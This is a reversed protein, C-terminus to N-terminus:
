HEDIRVVLELRAREQVVAAAGDTGASRLVADTEPGSIALAQIVHEHDRLQQTCTGAAPDWIM